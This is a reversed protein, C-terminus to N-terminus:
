FSASYQSVELRVTSVVASPEDRVSVAVQRDGSRLVVPLPYHASKTVAEEVKDEPIRLHFPVKQVAGPNGARDKVSVFLTLRAARADGDPILSIRSVPIDVLVSLVATEDDRPTETGPHLTIGLPNEVSQYLLATVTSQAAETDADIMRFKERHRVRLGKKNVRVDISHTTGPEWNAPRFGLSYYTDFDNALLDLHEDLLGSAQIRRGGTATAAFELPERLNDAAVTLTNSIAGQETLASRLEAAHDSAADLAYVTVGAENAARGLLEVDQMLDFRGIDHLYDSSFDIRRVGPEGLSGEGVRNVFEVFLEEGPRNPIGDSVYLIAKRGPLGAVTSVVTEIQRLSQLARNYEDAAYARIRALLNGVDLVETSRRGLFGGSQGRTLEAIIQRRELHQVESRASTRSAEGLIDGIEQRDFLFDSHFVLSNAYSVVTVLDESGLGNAVLDRIAAFARKRHTSRLRTHDVLITLYLRRDADAAAAAPHFSTDRPRELPEEIIRPKGGTEGYFNTIEVREGDVRLEFDERSLGPVPNGARDSVFAEVNVVRVEVTDIFSPAAPEQPEEQAASPVPPALVTLGLLCLVPVTRRFVSSGCGFRCGAVLRAAPLRPM